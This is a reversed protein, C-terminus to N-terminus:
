KKKKNNWTLVGLTVTMLIHGILRKIFAWIKQVIKKDFIWQILLFSGICWLAWCFNWMIFVIKWGLLKVMEEAM